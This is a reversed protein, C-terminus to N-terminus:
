PTHISLISIHISGHLKADYMQVDNASMVALDSRVQALGSDSSRQRQGAYKVSKQIWISTLCTKLHHRIYM